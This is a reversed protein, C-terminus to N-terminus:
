RQSLGNAQLGTFSSASGGNAAPTGGNDISNLIAGTFSWLFMGSAAFGSPDFAVATEGNSILAINSSVNEPASALATDGGSADAFTVVGNFGPLANLTDIDDPNPFSSDAPDNGDGFDIAGSIVAGGGLNVVDHGDGRLDIAFGGTGTIPAYSTITAPANNDRSVVYIGTAGKVVGSTNITIAGTGKHLARIGVDFGTVAATNITLDTSGTNFNYALIGDVLSGEVAGTSTISLRGTGNNFAYIGRWKGTVAATSITLDKGSTNGNRAKIGHEAGGGV